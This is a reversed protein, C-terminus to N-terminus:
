LTTVANLLYLLPTGLLLFRSLRRSEVVEETRVSKTNRTVRSSFEDRTNMPLIGTANLVADLKKCGSNGLGNRREVLAFKLVCHPPIIRVLAALETSSGSLRRLLSEPGSPSILILIGTEPPIRYAALNDVREFCV